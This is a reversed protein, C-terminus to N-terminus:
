LLFATVAKKVYDRYFAKEVNSAYLIPVTGIQEGNLRYIAEGAKTGVVVPAEAEKPVSIKKQVMSIDPYEVKSDSYDLANVTAEAM